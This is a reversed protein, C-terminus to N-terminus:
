LQKLVSLLTQSKNVTEQWEEVPVSDVTYGGGLYLYVKHNIVQACRLSVYLESKEPAIWGLFGTYFQREHDEFEAILEIAKDRPLGSVAPTPHLQEALSLVKDAHLPFIIDTRLHKVPGAHFTYPGEIEPSTVKFDSVIQKIFDTVMSQELKEKEGWEKSEQQKMTGALSMTRAQGNEQILLTEPTAGIWTGTREDSFLYVFANPYTRELIVFLKNLRSADMKEDLNVEEIRSFVAKGLHREKLENLFDHAKELYESKSYCLPKSASLVFGSIGETEEFFYKNLGNSDALIFGRKHRQEDFDVFRGTLTKVLSGPFRFKLISAM